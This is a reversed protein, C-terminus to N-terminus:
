ATLSILECSHDMFIVMSTCLSCELTQQPTKSRLETQIKRLIHLKTTFTDSSSEVGNTKVLLATTTETTTPSTRIVSIEPWMYANLSPTPPLKSRNSSRMVRSVLFISRINWLTLGTSPPRITTFVVSPLKTNTVLKHRM